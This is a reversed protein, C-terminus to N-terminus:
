SRGGNKQEYQEIYQKTALRIISSMSRDEKISIQHLVDSCDKDLYVAIRLGTRKETKNAM